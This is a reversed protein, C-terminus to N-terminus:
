PQPPVVKLDIVFSMEDINLRDDANSWDIAVASNYAVQRPDVTAQWFIGGIAASLTVTTAGVKISVNDLNQGVIPVACITVGLVQLTRGQSIVWPPVQAPGLLKPSIPRGAKLANWDVPFSSGLLVTALASTPVPKAADQLASGGDRATYSINLIADAVSTYPFQQTPPLSLQYTGIVGAYEFPLYRPDDGNLRLDFIGSDNVATSSVTMTPPAVVNYVFRTDGAPNEPYAAPTAGTTLARYKSALLRLTASVSTYPGVVCPISISIYKIRRFYHGPFDLDLLAEPITFTCSGSTRLKLLAIPDLQALSVSKTIELERFNKATYASDLRDLAFTLDNASLLGNHLSDWYGFQVIPGSSFDGLEYAMCQEAKKAMDFAQQYAKFYVSTIRDVVWQYLETNTYKSQLFALAKGSEAISVDHAKLDDQLMTGSAIAAIIEEDIHIADDIAQQAQFIWEASRRGYQAFTAALMANTAVASRNAAKASMFGIISAAINSGGFSITAAPSGGIGNLGVSFNPVLSIIAAAKHGDEMQNDLDIASSYEIISATELINIPSLLLGQYYVQRDLATKKAAQLAAIAAKNQEIADSKVTRVANLVTLESNNRLRALAEADRKELAALLQNGFEMVNRTMSQARELIYRFRYPPLPSNLGSIISALSLGGAVARVLAGPDIPPSTLPLQIFNGNIDQSHRIKFLRDAVLDWLALMQDNPPIGFYLSSLPPAPAQPLELGGHPLTTMDPLLNEITLLANGLLDISIGLENYTRPPVAVAPKVIQPKAGLLKDVTMYLTSAQTITERTLQRFLNDGWDMLNQIYKTVTCIQYAVPRLRAIVHPAYPNTRWLEIQTKLDNALSSGTPDSAVTGLITDIREAVYDSIQTKFFPKTQWYRKQPAQAKTPGTDPDEMDAGEPNFIYNLYNQAKDFQQDSSLMTALQLPLHFFLEWNYIAYPGNTSFDLTEQPFPQRVYDTPLYTAKFDFSTTELQTARALLNSLGGSYLQSRLYCVLPHYFSTFTAENNRFKPLKPDSADIYVSLLEKKLSKYEDDDNILKRVQNIDKDVKNFYIDIYKLALTIARSFWDFTASATRFNTDDKNASSWGPTIAYGRTSSDTVFYPLFTGTPVKLIKYLSVAMARINASSSVKSNTYMQWFLILRDVFTAQMPYTVTFKGYETGLISRFDTNTIFSRIGLDSQSITQLTPAKTWREEIFAANHFVPLPLYYFYAGPEQGEGPGSLPEPYGKCGTINFSGIVAAYPNGLLRVEPVDYVILISQGLNGGFDWYHISISDQFDPPINTIDVYGNAPFYVAGGTTVATSWKGTDPNRESLGLQIVLRQKIPDPTQGASNNIDPFAPPQNVQSPDQEWSFVPWVLNLRNNRLFAHVNNGPIEVGKVTEWPSWVTELQLTRHYYTYPSGGKTRAFVHFTNSPVDQFCCMVELYAIGDLSTLYGAVALEVSSDTLPQQQLSKEVATYLESKNDRLSPDIWNEPYLFVKKNAEWLRYQSYELWQNWVLDDALIRFPELGMQLRQVFQQISQHAQIMRSTLTETGMEVDILLIESIETSSSINPKSYALLFDVMADRKRLRLPDQIVKLVNLWDTNVPYRKKLANRATAVPNTGIAATSCLAIAESATMNAKRLTNAALQLKELTEIHVFDKLAYGLNSILATVSDPDQSTLKCFYTALDAVTAGSELLLEFFGFLTFPTNKDSPNKVDPFENAKLASLYDVFDSWAAWSIAASSTKTPLSGLDTWHLAAAHQLLWAVQTNSLSIIPLLFALRYLLRIADFQTPFDTESVTGSALKPDLLSQLASINTVLIKVLNSDLSYQTSLLDDLADNRQVLALYATITDSTVQVLAKQLALYNTDTSPTSAFDFQAQIIPGAADGITPALKTTILNNGTPADISGSFMLRFQLLDTQVVNPMQQILRIASEINEDITLDGNFLSVNAAQIIAYQVQVQTLFATIQASTIDRTLPPTPVPQTLFQVDSATLGLATTKQIISLFIPVQDLSSLPDIGSLRKFTYYDPISVAMRTSLSVVAYIRSLTPISLVRNAPTAALSAIVTKVDVATAGLCRSIYDAYDGVQLTTNTAIANIPFAPDIPGHAITNLFLSTYTILTTPSAADGPTDLRLTDVLDMVDEIATPYTKGLLKSIYSVIVSKVICSSDLNGNGLATASIVRDLSSVVWGSSPARNLANWFRIFRHFRDLSPNDLGIISKNALTCSSDLHRIYLAGIRKTALNPPPQAPPNLWLTADLMAQLDTYKIRSANLFKAVNLLVSAPSTSGTNWYNDQHTPDSTTILTNDNPSLVLRELAINIPSFKNFLDTMLNARPTGLQALYARCEELPLNFPLTPLYTSAALRDYSVSNVYAPSAALTQSDLYSQRLVRVANTGNSLSVVVSDDRVTRTKNALVDSVIAKATFPLKLQDRLFTLLDSSIKGKTLNGTFSGPSLGDPAIFDELLENVLDIYPLTTNTNNCSLDLDGLDGRRKLLIDRATTGNNQGSSADIVGRAELFQLVDVFYASPSYVTMCDACACVDGWQFLQSIQPFDKNLSELKEPPLPTSLGAPMLANSATKMDGAFLAAALHVNSARDFVTKAEETTFPSNETAMKKVFQSRTTRSIDAASHHGHDLLAVTQDFSPAIKFIRQVAAVGRMTSEDPPSTFSSPRLKGHQLDFEPNTDLFTSVEKADISLSPHGLRVSTPHDTNALRPQVSNTAVHQRLKSAFTVTPFEKESISKIDKIAQAQAESDEDSLDKEVMIEVSVANAAARLTGEDMGALAKGGHIGRLMTTIASSELIPNDGAPVLRPVQSASTQAKPDVSSGDEQIKTQAPKTALADNLRSLLGYYDGEINPGELVKRVAEEAGSSLFDSILNWILDELTPQKIIFKQSQDRLPKWAAAIGRFDITSPVLNQQIALTLSAKVTNDDLTGFQYLLTEPPTDLSVDSQGINSSHQLSSNQNTDTALLGYFAEPPISLKLNAQAYDSIRYALITNTLNATTLLAPNLHSLFTLDKQKSDERLPIIRKGINPDSLSASTVTRPQSSSSYRSQDEAEKPTPAAPLAQDLTNLVQTFTDPSLATPARATLTINILTLTPPNYILDDVAPSYLTIEKGRFVRPVLTPLRGTEPRLADAIAYKAAFYGAPDVVATALSKEQNLDQDSLTVSLRIGPSGDAYTISGAVFRTAPKDLNIGANVLVTQMVTATEPDVVGTPPSSLLDKHDQQFQLVTLRTWPGFTGTAVEAAPTSELAVHRSPKKIQSLLLLYSHLLTVLPGTAGVTIRGTFSSTM